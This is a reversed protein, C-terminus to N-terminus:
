VGLGISQGIRQAVYDNILAQRKNHLVLAWAEGHLEVETILLIRDWLYRNIGMIEYDDWAKHICDRFRMYQYRSLVCDEHVVLRITKRPGTITVIM